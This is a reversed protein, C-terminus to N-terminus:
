GPGEPQLGYHSVQFVRKWNRRKGVRLYGWEYVPGGDRPLAPPDWSYMEGTVFDEPLAGPEWYPHTSPPEGQWFPHDAHLFPDDYPPFPEKEDDDDEDESAVDYPASTSYNDAEKPEGSHLLGLEMQTWSSPRGSHPKVAAEAGPADPSSNTRVRALDYVNNCEEEESRDDRHPQSSEGSGGTGEDNDTQNTFSDTLRPGLDLISIKLQKQEEKQEQEQEQKSEEACGGSQHDPGTEVQAGAEVDVVLDDNGLAARLESGGLQGADCPGSEEGGCRALLDFVVKRPPTPPRANDNSASNSTSSM